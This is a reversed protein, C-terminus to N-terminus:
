LTAFLVVLTQGTSISIDSIESTLTLTSASSDSTWDILPRLINPFSSLQVNLIRAFAPMSFIRLNGNLQSSLDYYQVHGGLGGGGGGGSYIIQGGTKIKKELDKLKDDLDKIASIKLKEEEDLSELKQKIIEPTDPSGDAGNIGDKPIPIRNIIEEIIKDEDADRGDKPKAIRELVKKIIRNEDANKGDQPIRLSSQILRTIEKIVQNVESETWYDIGRQPTDGKDGKVLDIEDLKDQIRNIADYLLGAISGGDKIAKLKELENLLEKLKNKDVPM